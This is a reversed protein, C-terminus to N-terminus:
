DEGSEFVPHQRSESHLSQRLDAGRGFEGYDAGAAGAACANRAPAPRRQGGRRADAHNGTAPERRKARSHRFSSRAPIPDTESAASPKTSAALLKGLDARANIAARTLTLTGSLTSSESTGYLSLQANTTTSVDEPYRVRVQRADAQLRYILPEGFEMFGTFNIKGGGTEALLSEITARKRDFLVVGSVSDIGNTVGEMYLSANKVEARGNVQPDRMSGRVSASITANGRAQLDPNLLALIAVNIGGKVTLDASADAKLPIAGTVELNTDRATFVASRVRAEKATVDIVIPQTNKLVIEDPTVEPRPVPKHAASLQLADIRVEARLQDPRRLPMNLTAGAEVFGDFPLPTNKEAEPGGITALDRLSAVSLRSVKLTAFGPLDGELKWTGQAELTADHFKATTRVALDTGHTQGTLTVDGLTEGAIVLRHVNVDGNWEHPAFANPAVSARLNFKSDVTGAVDPLLAHLAAVRTMDVARANADLTLDGRKWDPSASQYSGSFTVRAAGQSAEANTFRVSSAAYHVTGRLRDLKENFGAPATIDFTTDVEPHRVTGAIRANATTVTGQIDQAFGAEKLLEPISASRIDLRATLAGDDFQGGRAKVDADGTIQLMGRAFEIGQLSIDSANADVQASLRDLAHGQITAKTLAADGHFSSNEVPGTLTGSVSVDGGKLEVPFPQPVKVDLFALAPLVDELHASRARIDISKGPTGSFNITTSGTALHSDNIHLGATEDYHFAVLGDLTPGGPVPVITSTADIRPATGRAATDVTLGGTLMANWPLARDTLVHAADALQLDEFNGNTHFVLDTTLSATGTFRAGLAHLVLGRLTIGKPNWVARTTASVDKVSVRDRTFGLGRAAASVDLTFGPKPGLDVSLTGNVDATGVPQIPLSFTSVADRAAVRGKVQFMGSPANLGTLSGVLDVGSQGTTARFRSFALRDKELTFAAALDIEVPTAVALAMHVQHSALEGRYRKGAGEYTMSLRLDEGQLNIPLERNDYQVMGDIVEYRRVALDVVHQAWSVNDKVGPPTPLNTSGDDYIAIYASPHDLRVLALDVKRELASILRLGISVKEIRVLPPEDSSETGHLILPSITADLTRWDFSFTGLEVKGGTGKVLEQLIRERLREQFWGSKFVLVVSISLAILLVVIGAAM